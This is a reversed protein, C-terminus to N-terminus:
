SKEKIMAQVYKEHFDSWAVGGQPKWGIKIWKNVIISLFTPSDDSLIRYEM